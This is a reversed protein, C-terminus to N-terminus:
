ATQLLQARDALMDLTVAEVMQQWSMCCSTHQGAISGEAAQGSSATYHGFANGTNTPLSLCAVALLGCTVPCLHM